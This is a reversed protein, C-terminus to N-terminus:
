IISSYCHNTSPCMFCIASFYENIDETVVCSCPPAVVHTATSPYGSVWLLHLVHVIIFIMRPVFWCQPNLPPSMRNLPASLPGPTGPEPGPFSLPPLRVGLPRPCSVSRPLVPSTRFDRTMGVAGARPQVPSPGHAQLPLLREPKKKPPLPHDPSVARVAHMALQLSFRCFIRLRAGADKM